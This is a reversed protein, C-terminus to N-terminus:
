RSYVFKAHARRAPRARKRGGSEAIPSSTSPAYPVARPLAKAKAMEKACTTKQHTVSLLGFPWFGKVSAFTKHNAHKESQSADGGGQLVTKERAREAAQRIKLSSRLACTGCFDERRRKFPLRPSNGCQRSNSAPSYQRSADKCFPPPPRVTLPRKQARSDRAPPRQRSAAKYFPLQTRFGSWCRERPSFATEAGPQQKSASVAQFCGQLLRRPQSLRELPTRVIWFAAGNARSDRAPPRQRSVGKDFPPPQPLLAANTRRRKRQGSSNHRGIRWLLYFSRKKRPLRAPIKGPASSDRIPLGRPLM